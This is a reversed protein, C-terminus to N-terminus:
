ARLFAYGGSYKKCKCKDRYNNNNGINIEQMIMYLARQATANLPKLEKKM